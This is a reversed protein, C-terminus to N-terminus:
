RTVAERAKLLVTYHGHASSKTVMYHGQLPQKTVTYNSVELNNYTDCSVLM